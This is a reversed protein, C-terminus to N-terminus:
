HQHAAELDSNQPMIPMPTVPALDDNIKADGIGPPTKAAPKEVVFPPGDWIVIGTGDPRIAPCCSSPIKVGTSRSLAVLLKFRNGDVERQMREIKRETFKKYCDLRKRLVDDHDLRAQLIATQTHDLEIQSM